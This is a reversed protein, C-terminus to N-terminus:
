ELARTFALAESLCKYLVEAGISTLLDCHNM